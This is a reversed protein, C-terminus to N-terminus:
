SVEMRHSYVNYIQFGTGLPSYEVWYTVAVPRHSALFHGTALDAMKEGTAEAHAIVKRIDEALVMRKEMVGAVEESIALQIPDAEDMVNEGWLERLVRTKLKARNEHRQSYGPGKGGALEGASGCILELLHFSRKGKAAFNDRCMACYTLYDAESEHIRRTVVKAAVEPNAFSMLGGYGCCTTLSRNEKLERVAVGLKGLLHRVSEQIAGDHRTTCADHIAVTPATAPAAVAPLGVRDLVTWLSEVPMAPAHDTFIRYCSSCATIVQPSGLEAWQQQMAALSEGFLEQRGSWEAPAGCCGLM